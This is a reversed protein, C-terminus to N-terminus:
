FSLMTDDKSAPPTGAFARLTEHLRAIEALLDARGCVLLMTLYEQRSLAGRQRDLLATAEDSLSLKVLTTM